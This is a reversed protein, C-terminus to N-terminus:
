VHGDGNGVIAKKGRIDETETDIQGENMKSDVSKGDRSRVIAKQQDKRTRREDRRKKAQQKKLVADIAAAAEAPKWCM